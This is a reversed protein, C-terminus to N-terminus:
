RVPQFAIRVGAAHATGGGEVPEGRPGFAEYQITSTFTQADAAVEIRGFLWQPPAWSPRILQEYMTRGACQGDRCREFTAEIAELSTEFRSSPFEAILSEAM